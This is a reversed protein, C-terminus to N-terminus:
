LDSGRPFPIAIAKVTCEAACFGCEECFDEEVHASGDRMIIARPPCVEMCRGCGTCAEEDICPIM